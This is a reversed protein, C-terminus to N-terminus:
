HGLVEKMEKGSIWHISIEPSVFNKAQNAVSKLYNNKIRYIGKYQNVVLKSDMYITCPKYNHRKIVMLLQLLSKWEAVNNTIR